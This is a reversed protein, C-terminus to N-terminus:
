ETGTKEAKAARATRLTAVLPWIEEEVIKPTLVGIFKYRINGEADVLFTEPAGYVGFDIGTRGDLDHASAVYPDGFQALWRTANERADKYNLGFVPIQGSEAVATITPHEDRCAVCWSGWVNLLYEQGLLQERSIRKSPDNVTPLDFEPAPKNILPSPVLQPNLALGAYLFGAIAVFVTMPILLRWM